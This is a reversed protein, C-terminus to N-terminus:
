QLCSTDDVYRRCMSPANDYTFLSSEYFGAFINALAPGLPSCMAVGDIQRYMFNNFSFEVSMTAFQMLEVFVNEPIDPPSLCSRYLMDCCIDITEM